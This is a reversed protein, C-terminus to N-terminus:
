YVWSEKQLAQKYINKMDKGTFDNGYDIDENQRLIKISLNIIAEKRTNGFASFYYDCGSSKLEQKAIYPNFKDNTFYSTFEAENALVDELKVFNEPIEFNPYRVEVRVVRLKNDYQRYHLYKKKLKDKGCVNMVVTSEKNIMEVITFDGSHQCEMKPVDNPEFSFGLTYYVQPNINLLKALERSKDM